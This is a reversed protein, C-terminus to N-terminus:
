PTPGRDLAEVADLVSGPREEQIFQGVGPVSDVTFAPLQQQLLEIEHDGVGSSHRYGGVMLRVPAKIEHLHDRLLEPEKARAMGHLADIARHMDRAPGATYGMVVSDTIWTSDASNERMGNRVKKRITGAGVFLKLLGAWKMASKLGPTAAEEVPGGDISILGRVLEPRRYALRYAMSAGVSQAVVISHQVGLSDLVRGIRDAQATLSYDAKSPYGSFGTGLPEIVITRYGLEALPQAVTRWSYAGGFLGPVLIVPRGTGLSTTRVIEDPGVTVDRITADPVTSDSVAASALALAFAFLM